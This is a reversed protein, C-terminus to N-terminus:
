FTFTRPTNATWGATVAAASYLSRHEGSFAGTNSGQVQFTTPWRDAQPTIRVGNPRVANGAGLDLKIWTSPVSPPANGIWYTILSNDFAGYADLGSPNVYDASAVLPAPSNDNTMDVTPYLVGNRIFRLDGLGLPQGPTVGGQVVTVYLRLYRYPATDPLLMTFM